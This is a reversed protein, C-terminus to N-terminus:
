TLRPLPVRAPHVVYTTGASATIWARELQARSYVRRVSRNRPAAPDNVVPRGGKTFGRLVLLHGNSANIPAGDLEGPGFAISLVLPIGARIYREAARLSPLRTVFADLGRTGAYATTFAWNGTGDYRHDYVMRAAHEVWPDRYSDKVWAYQKPRPGRHWSALIMAMSTPSCWAEGGGGWRPYHGKHIMQSYGPVPLVRGRVRGPSSTSTRSPVATSAVGSVSAVVPTRRTGARRYLTVRLQWARAARHAKVTDVAVSALDDAQPGQSSDHLGRLRGQWHGLVDWSGTRGNSRIRVEPQLWTGKPTRASWSPVMERFGFGPHVWQSRWRGYAYRREPTSGYPDNFRRVGVPNGVRIAGHKVVVGSREGHRWRDSTSWRALDARVRHPAAAASAPDPDARDTPGTSATAPVLTTAALGSALATAAALVRISTM